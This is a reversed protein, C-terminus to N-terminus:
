SSRGRKDEAWEVQLKDDESGELDSPKNGNVFLQWVGVRLRDKAGRGTDDFGWEVALGDHTYAFEFAAPGPGREANSAKHNKIWQLAEDQSAFEQREEEIDVMVIDKCSSYGVFFLNPWPPEPSVEAGSYMGLSGYWRATRQEPTLTIRCKDWLYSRQIENDAVITFHGSATRTHIKMGQSLVKECNKRPKYHAYQSAMVWLVMLIFIPVVIRNLAVAWRWRRLTGVGTILLGPFICTPMSFVLLWPFQERAIPDSSVYLRFLGQVYHVFYSSGYAGILIELWVLAMIVFSTM